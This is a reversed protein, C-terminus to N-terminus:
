QLLRYVLLAVLPSVLLALLLGRRVPSMTPVAEGRDATMGRVDEELGASVRTLRFAFRTIATAGVLGAVLVVAGVVGTTVAFAAGPEAVGVLVLILGLGIGSGLVVARVLLPTRVPRTYAAVSTGVSVARFDEDARADFPMRHEPRVDGAPLSRGAREEAEWDLLGAMLARSEVAMRVAVVVAGLAVVAAVAAVTVGGSGELATGAVLGALAVVVMLLSQGVLRGPAFLRRELVPVADARAALLEGRTRWPRDAGSTNTVTSM